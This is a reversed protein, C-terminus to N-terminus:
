VRVVKLLKGMVAEVGCRASARRDDSIIGLIKVLREGAPGIMITRYDYGVSERLLRTTEFIPIGWLWGADRFYLKGDDIQLYTPKDAKGEIIM